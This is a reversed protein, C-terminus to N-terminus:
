RILEKNNNIMLTELLFAGAGEARSMRLTRKLVLDRLSWIGRMSIKTLLHNKRLHSNMM